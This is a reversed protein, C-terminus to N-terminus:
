QGLHKTGLIFSMKPIDFDFAPRHFVRKRVLILHDVGRFMDIGKAAAVM